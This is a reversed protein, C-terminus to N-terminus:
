NQFDTGKLRKERGRDLLLETRHAAEITDSHKLTVAAPRAGSRHESTDSSVFRDLARLAATGIDM